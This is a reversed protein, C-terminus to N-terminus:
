PVDKRCYYANSAVLIIYIELIEYVSVETENRLGDNNFVSSYVVTSIDCNM